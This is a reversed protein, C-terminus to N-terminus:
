LIFNKGIYRNWITEAQEPDRVVVNIALGASPLKDFIWDMDEEPIDGWIILSNHELIKM